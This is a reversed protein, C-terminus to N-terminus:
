MLIPSSQPQRQHNLRAVADPIARELTDADAFLRGRHLGPIAGARDAEGCDESQSLARLAAREAADAMLTSKGPM